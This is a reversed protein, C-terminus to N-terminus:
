FSSGAQTLFEREQATSERGLALNRHPYRGFRQIIEFHQRESRMSGELGAQSFLELAREHVSMSESHMFPMYLFSKENVTLTQDFGKELAENALALAQADSAFADATGRFLNRSFQDLVIIEALCGKASSRWPSLEGQKARTHVNLFRQRILEDLQVDKRWWQAPKLEEFWFEIVEQWM